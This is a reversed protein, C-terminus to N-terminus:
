KRVKTVKNGDIDNVIKQGIARFGKQIRKSEELSVPDRRSEGPPFKAREEKEKLIQKSVKDFGSDPLEM